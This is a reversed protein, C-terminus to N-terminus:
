HSLSLQVIRPQCSLHQGLKVGQNVVGVNFAAQVKAMGNHAIFVISGELHM